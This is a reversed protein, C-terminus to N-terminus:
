GAGGQPPTASANPDDQSAEQSAAEEERYFGQIHAVTIGQLERLIDLRGRLYHLNADTPGEASFRGTEVLDAVADRMNARQDGLFALFGATIPNHRWLNFETASLESFLERHDIM